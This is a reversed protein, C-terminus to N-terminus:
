PPLIARTRLVVVGCIAVRRGLSARSGSALRCSDMGHWHPSADMAFTVSSRQSISVVDPDFQFVGAYDHRPARDPLVLAM